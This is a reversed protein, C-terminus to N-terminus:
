YNVKENLNNILSKYCAYFLLRPTFYIALFSVILIFAPDYLNGVIVKNKYLNFLGTILTYVAIARIVYLILGTTLKPKIEGTMYIIGKDENVKGNFVVASANKGLGSLKFTSEDLNVEGTISKSFSYTRNIKNDIDRCSKLCVRENKYKTKLNIKKKFIVKM